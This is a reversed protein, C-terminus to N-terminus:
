ARAPPGSLHKGKGKRTGPKKATANEFMLRTSYFFNRLAHKVNVHTLTLVCSACDQALMNMQQWFLQGVMLLRQQRCVDRFADTVYASSTSHHQSTTLRSVSKDSRRAQCTIVHTCRCWSLDLESEFCCVATHAVSM